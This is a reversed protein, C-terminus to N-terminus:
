IEKLKSSTIAVGIGRQGRATEIRVVNGECVLRLPGGPVEDFDIAFKLPSGLELPESTEFFVGSASIDRTVGRGHALVVSLHTAVRDEQRTM